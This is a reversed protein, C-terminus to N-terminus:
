RIVLEGVRCTHGIRSREDTAYAYVHDSDYWGVRLAYVGPTVHDPLDVEFEEVIMEGQQWETTPYFAITPVHLIRADEVGELETVAFLPDADGLDGLTMWMYRLCYRDGAMPTVSAEVLGIAGGFSTILPPSEARHEVRVSQELTLEDWERETM